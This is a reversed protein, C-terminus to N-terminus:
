FPIDDEPDFAPAPAAPAAAPAAAAPAAVAPAPIPAAALAPAPAAAAPAAVASPASWGPPPTWPAAVPAPAVAPAAAGPVTTSAPLPAAAAPAAPAPLGGPPATNLVRVRIGAGMQTSVLYLAIRAGKWAESNWGLAEGIAKQNTANLILAKEQNVFWLAQRNVDQSTRQDRVVEHTLMRITVAAEQQNVANLADGLAAATLWTGGASGPAHRPDGRVEQGM